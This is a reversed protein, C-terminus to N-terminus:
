FRAGYTLSFGDMVDATSGIFYYRLDLSTPHNGHTLEYGIIANAAFGNTSDHNPLRDFAIGIGGGYRFNNHHGILNIQIPVSYVSSTGNYGIGANLEYRGDSFVTREVIGSFGVNSGGIGHNFFYAGLRVKWYQSLESGTTPEAQAHAKPASLLGIAMAMVAVTAFMRFRTM